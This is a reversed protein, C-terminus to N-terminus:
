HTNGYYFQYNGSDHSLLGRRWEGLALTADMVCTPCSTNHGAALAHGMEHLVASQYDHKDAPVPYANGYTWAAGSSDMTIIAVPICSFGWPENCFTGQVDANGIDSINVQRIEMRPTPLTSCSPGQVRYWNLEGGVANWTSMADNIRAVQPISLTWAGGNITSQLCAQVHYKYPDGGGLNRALWGRVLTINHNALAVTPTFSLVLAAMLALHARRM